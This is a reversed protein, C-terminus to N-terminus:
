IKLVVPFCSTLYVRTLELVILECANEPQEFIVFTLIGSQKVDIYVFANKFQVPRVDIVNGSLKAVIPSLAKSAQLERALISIGLLTVLM